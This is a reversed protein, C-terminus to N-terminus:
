RSTIICTTCRCSGRVSRSTASSSTISISFASLWKSLVSTLSAESLAHLLKEEDGELYESLSPSDSLKLDLYRRVLHVERQKLFTKLVDVEHQSLALGALADLSANVEEVQAEDVPVTSIWYHICEEALM